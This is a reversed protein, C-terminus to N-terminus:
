FMALPIQSFSGFEGQTYIPPYGTSLPAPRVPGQPRDTLSGFERFFRHKRPFLKLAITEGPRSGAVERLIQQFYIASKQPFYNGPLNVFSWCGPLVPSCCSSGPIRSSLSPLISQIPKNIGSFITTRHMIKTTIYLISIPQFEWVGNTYSELDLHIPILERAAPTDDVTSQFNDVLNNSHSNVNSESELIISISISYLYKISSISTQDIYHLRSIM